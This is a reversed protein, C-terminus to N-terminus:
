EDSPLLVEIQKAVIGSTRRTCSFPDRHSGNIWSCSGYVFTRPQAKGASTLDLRTSGPLPLYCRFSLSPPLRKIWTECTGCRGGVGVSETLSSERPSKRGINVFM